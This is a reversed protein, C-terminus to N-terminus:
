RHLKDESEIRRWMELYNIASKDRRVAQTRAYGLADAEAITMRENGRKASRHRWKMIFEVDHRRMRSLHKSEWHISGAGLYYRGFHRAHEAKMRVVLRDVASPTTAAVTGVLRDAAFQAAERRSLGLGNDSDRAFEFEIARAINPLDDRFHRRWWEHIRKPNTIAQLSATILWLPCAIGTESAVVLADALAACNGSGSWIRRLRELTQDPDDVGPNFARDRWPWLFSERPDRKWVRQRGGRGRSL